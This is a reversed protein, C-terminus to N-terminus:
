RSPADTSSSTASMLFSVDKRKMLKKLNTLRDKGRKDSVPKLQFKEPVIPLKGLQWFKYQKADIDEPMFLEVLHGAAAAIVGFKSSFSDRSNSQNNDAM